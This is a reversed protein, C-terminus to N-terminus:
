CGIYVNYLSAAKPFLLRCDSLTGDFDDTKLVKGFAHVVADAPFNDFYRAGDRQCDGATTSVKTVNGVEALAMFEAFDQRFM